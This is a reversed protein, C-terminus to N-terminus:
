QKRKERKDDDKIGKRVEEYGKTKDRKWEGRMDENEKERERNEGKEKEEKIEVVNGM